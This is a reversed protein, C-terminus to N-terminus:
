DFLFGLNMLFYVSFGLIEAPSRVRDREYMYKIQTGFRLPAVVFISGITDIVIDKTM